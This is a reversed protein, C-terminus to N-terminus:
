FVWDLTYMSHPFSSKSAVAWSPLSIAIVSEFTYLSVQGAEEEAAVQEDYYETPQPDHLIDCSKWM